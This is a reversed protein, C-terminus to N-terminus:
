EGRVLGNIHRMLVAGADKDVSMSLLYETHKLPKAPDFFNPSLIYGLADMGLGVVIKPGQNQMLAKTELSHVPTTEGPHTAFQAHGISFWVIETTVSDGMPRQIVGADALQRFGPNSLPLHIVRRKYAISAGGLPQGNQLMSVVKDGLERGRKEAAAFEKKEYEPQVWGGIAGQLFLNVGGWKEDLSAYMGSVYDASVQHNGGVDLVTPHCAFNTLTAISKGDMGKFQIVNLSRDLSLSDSINYVWGDGFTSVAYDARAPQRNNLAKVVAQAAKSVLDSMYVTDVGSTLPDPGWIGVVDPGAHTHTSTMVIRNPDFTALPVQRAVAERIKLLSPYLLGICDFALIAVSNQADSVVVAKVYLSDHIGTVQRNNGGGAIFAGVKPTINAVAVGVRYLDTKQAPQNCNIALLLLVFSTGAWCTHLFTKKVPFYIVIKLIPNRGEKLNAAFTCISLFSRGFLKDLSVKQCVKVASLLAIACVAM